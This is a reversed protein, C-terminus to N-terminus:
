AKNAKALEKNETKITKLDTLIRDMDLAENRGSLDNIKAQLSDSENLTRGNDHVREGLKGFAEHVEVLVKYTEKYAPKTKADKFVLEDVAVFSRSLKETSANIERRSDRIDSLIKSIEAKQKNVNRIIDLIRTVYSSRKVDKPLEQLDADLSTAESEKIRLEAVLAKTEERLRKVEELKEKAGMKRLAMGEKQKRYQEVLPARHEEWETALQVLRTASEDCVQKLKAKNEDVSDLLSLTRNKINYEDELAKTAAAAEAINEEVQRIAAVLQEFDTEESAQAAVLRAIDDQLEQLEQEMKIKQEERKRTQIEQPTLQEGGDEIAVDAEVEQGFAAAHSFVTGQTLERAALADLDASRAATPARLGRSLMSKLAAPDAGGAGSEARRSRMLDLTNKELLASAFDTGAPVQQSVFPLEGSNFEDNEPDDEPTRLPCTALATCRCASALAPAWPERRWTGLRSIISSQVDFGVAADAGDTEDAKPLKQAVFSLLRRVEKEDPYLFLQFGLDGNWGMDQIAKAFGTCVKFRGSMERPLKEVFDNTGTIVRLCRGTCAVLTESDIERVSQVSKPLPCGAGRLTMMLIEDVESM